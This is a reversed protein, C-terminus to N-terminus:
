GPGNRWSPNSHLIECKMGYIGSIDSLAYFTTSTSNFVRVKVNFWLCEELLIDEVARPENPNSM